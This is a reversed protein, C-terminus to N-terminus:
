ANKPGPLAVLASRLGVARGTGLPLGKDFCRYQRTVTEGPESPGYGRDM